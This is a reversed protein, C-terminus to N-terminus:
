SSNKSHKGSIKSSNQKYMLIKKSMDTLNNPSYRNEISHEYKSSRKKSLSQKRFTDISRHSRPQKPKFLLEKSKSLLMSILEKNNQKRAISMPTNGSSDAIKPDAKFKLLLAVVSVNCNECAFHLATKNNPTLRNIDAGHRILINIWATSM